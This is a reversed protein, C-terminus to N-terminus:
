KNTSCELILTAMYIEAELFASPAVSYVDFVRLDRATDRLKSNTRHKEMSAEIREIAELELKTHFSSSNRRRKGKETVIM